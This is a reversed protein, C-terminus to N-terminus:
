YLTKMIQPFVVQSTYMQCVELFNTPYITEWRPISGLGSFINAIMFIFGGLHRWSTCFSMPHMVAKLLNMELSPMLPSEKKLSRLFCSLNWYVLSACSAMSSSLCYRVVGGV